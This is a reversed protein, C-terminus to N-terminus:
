CVARGPHIGPVCDTMLRSDYRGGSESFHPLAPTRDFGAATLKMAQVLVGAFRSRISLSSRNRLAAIPVQEARLYHGLGHGAIEPELIPQTLRELSVLENQVILLSAMWCL